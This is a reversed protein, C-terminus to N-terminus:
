QAQVYILHLTYIIVKDWPYYWRKDDGSCCKVCCRMLGCYFQAAHADSDAYSIKDDESQRPGNTLPQPEPSVKNTERQSQPQSTVTRDADMAHSVILQVQIKM